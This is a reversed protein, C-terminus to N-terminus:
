KIPPEDEQFIGDEEGTDTLYYEVTPVWDDLLTTMAIKGSHLNLNTEQREIQTVESHQTKPATSSQSIKPNNKLNKAINEKLKRLDDYVKEYNQIKGQLLSLSIQASPQEPTPVVEELNQKVSNKKRYTELREKWTSKFSFVEQFSMLNLPYTKDM